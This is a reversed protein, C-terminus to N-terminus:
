QCDYQVQKYQENVSDWILEPITVPARYNWQIYKNQYNWHTKVEIQSTNEFQKRRKPIM